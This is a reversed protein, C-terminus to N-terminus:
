IHALNRKVECSLIMFVHKHNQWAVSDAFSVEKCWNLLVRKDFRWFYQPFHLIVARYAKWKVHEINIWEINNITCDQFSRLARSLAGAKEIITWTIKSSHSVNNKVSYWQPLPLPYMKKPRGLRTFSLLKVWKRDWVNKYAFLKKRCFSLM